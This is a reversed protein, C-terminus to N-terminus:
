RAIYQCFFQGRLGGNYPYNNIHQTISVKQKSRYKIKITFCIKPRNKTKDRKGSKEQEALSLPERAESPDAEKDTLM